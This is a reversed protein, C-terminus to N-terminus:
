RVWKMRTAMSTTGVLLWMARRALGPSVDDWDELEALAEGDVVAEEDGDKEHGGISRGGLGLYQFVDIPIPHFLNLLLLM